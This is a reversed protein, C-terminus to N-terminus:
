KIGTCKAQFLLNCVSVRTKLDLEVTCNTCRLLIYVFDLIVQNVYQESHTLHSRTPAQEDACEQKTVSDM